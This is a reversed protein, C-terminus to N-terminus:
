IFIQFHTTPLLISSTAIDVIVHALVDEGGGADIGLAEKYTRGSRVLMNFLKLVASLAPYEWVIFDIIRLRHVRSRRVM